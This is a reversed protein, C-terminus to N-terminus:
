KIFFTYFTFYRLEHLTYNVFAYKAKMSEKLNDHSIKLQMYPEGFMIIMYCLITIICINIMNYNTSAFIFSAVKLCIIFLKYLKYRVPDQSFCIIIVILTGHVIIGFSSDFITVSTVSRFITSLDFWTFSVFYILLYKIECKRTLMMFEMTSLLLGFCDTTLINKESFVFQTKGFVFFIIGVINISLVYIDIKRGNYSDILLEIVKGCFLFIFVFGLFNLNQTQISDNFM